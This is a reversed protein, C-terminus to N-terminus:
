VEVGDKCKGLRELFRDGSDGKHCLVFLQATVFLLLSFTVVLLLTAAAFEQWVYLLKKQHNRSMKSDTRFQDRQSAVGSGGWGVTGKLPVSKPFLSGLGM